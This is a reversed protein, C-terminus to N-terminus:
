KDVGISDSTLSYGERQRSFSLQAGMKELKLRQSDMARSYEFVDGMIDLAGFVAAGAVGAVSFGGIVSGALGISKGIMASAASMNRQGVYDDRVSFYKGIQYRAESNLESRIRSYAQNALILATKSFGGSKEAATQAESDGTAKDGGGDNPKTEEDKITIVVERIEQAM